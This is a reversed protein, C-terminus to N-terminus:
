QFQGISELPKHVTFDRDLLSEEELKRERLSRYKAIHFPGMGLLTLKKRHSILWPHM